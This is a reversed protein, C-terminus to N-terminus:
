QRLPFCDYFAHFTLSLLFFLPRMPPFPSPTLAVSYAGLNVLLFLFFPLVFFYFLHSRFFFVVFLFVMRTEKGEDLGKDGVEAMEGSQLVM